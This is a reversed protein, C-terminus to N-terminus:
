ITLSRIKKITSILHIVIYTGLSSYKSVSLLLSDKTNLRYQSAKVLYDNYLARYSSIERITKANEILLSKVRLRFINFSDWIEEKLCQSELESKILPVLDLMNQKSANSLSSCYSSLNGQFYHYYPVSLHKITKAYLLIRHLVSIDELMNLGAIYHIDNDCFIRRRILRLCTGGHAKGLFVNQLCEIPSNGVSQSVIVTKKKYEVYYDCSVIDITSGETAMYLKEVMDLELWDDSDVTLLYDGKAENLASERACALGKNSKHSIVRIHDKLHPYEEIFDSLVRISDDTSCDNVFIYEISDALTQNFLSMACRKIYAEVNYIPVLISVKYKNMSDQNNYQEM